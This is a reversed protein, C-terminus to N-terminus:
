VADLILATTLKAGDGSVNLWKLLQNVSQRNAAKVQWGCHNSIELGVLGMFM